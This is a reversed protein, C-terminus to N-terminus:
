MFWRKYFGRNKVINEFRKRYFITGLGFIMLMEAINLPYAGLERIKSAHGEKSLYGYRYLERGGIVVSTLAATM